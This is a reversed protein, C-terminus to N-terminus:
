TGSGVDYLSPMAPFMTIGEPIAPVEPIAPILDVDPVEPIDPQAPTFTAAFEVPEAQAAPGTPTPKPRWLWVTLVVMAAAAIPVAISLVRRLSMPRDLVDAALDGTYGAAQHAAKARHLQERLPTM